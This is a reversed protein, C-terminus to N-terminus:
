LMSFVMEIVPDLSNGYTLPWPVGGSGSLGGMVSLSTVTAEHDM